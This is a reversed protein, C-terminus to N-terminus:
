EVKVKKKSSPFYNDIFGFLKSNISTPTQMNEIMNTVKAKNVNTKRNYLHPM